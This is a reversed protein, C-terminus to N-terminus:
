DKPSVEFPNFQNTMLSEQDFERGVFDVRIEQIVVPTLDFVTVNSDHAAQYTSNKGM